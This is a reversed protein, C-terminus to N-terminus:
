LTFDQYTAFSNDDTELASAFRQNGCNQLYDRAPFLQSVIASLLPYPSIHVSFMSTRRVTRHTSCNHRPNHPFNNSLLLVISDLTKQINNM